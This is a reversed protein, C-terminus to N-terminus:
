NKTDLLKLDELLDDIQFDFLIKKSMSIDSSLIKEKLKELGDKVKEVNDM